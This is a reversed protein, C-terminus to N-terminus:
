SDVYLKASTEVSDKYTAYKKLTNAEIINRIVPISMATILGLISITLLLEVLTFGKIKKRKKKKEKTRSKNM